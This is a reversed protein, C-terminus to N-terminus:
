QDALAAVEFANLARSYIRMDDIGGIYSNGQPSQDPSVSLLYESSPSSQGFRLTDELVLEGNVYVRLYDINYTLAVHNWTDATIVATTQASQEKGHAEIIGGPLLRLYVNPDATPASEPHVYRLLDEASTIDDPKLWMSVTWSPEWLNTSSPLVIYDGSQLNTAAGDVGNRNTAPSGGTLVGDHADKGSDLANGDFRYEALLNTSLDLRATAFQFQTYQLTEGDLATISDSIRVEYITSPALNQAPRFYATKQSADYEVTGEMQGSGAIVSIADANVTAPEVLKNFTIEIVDDHGVDNADKGPTTRTVAFRVLLQVYQEFDPITINHGLNTYRDQLNQKIEGIRLQTAQDEIQQKLIESDLAGDELDLSVKSIFETFEAVTLQGQLMTSIALLAGNSNSAESIDMNEFAELDSGTIRFAALIDEEAQLKAATFSMNETSVLHRIRESALTTLINVNVNEADDTAVLARLQLQASSLEGRVENFYFGDAIVEVYESNVRGSFTYDGFDSKTVVQYSDGSPQLQPGLEQITIQSGSIFPGKQIYGSLSSALLTTDSLPGLVLFIVAALAIGFAGGFWFQPMRWSAPRRAEQKLKKRLNASFLPDVQADPKAGAIQEETINRHENM